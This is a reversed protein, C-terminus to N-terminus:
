NTKAQMPPASVIFRGPTIAEGTGSAKLKTWIFQDASSYRGRFDSVRLIQVDFCSVFAFSSSKHQQPQKEPRRAECKWDPAEDTSASSHGERYGSHHM